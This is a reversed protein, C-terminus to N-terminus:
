FEALPFVTCDSILPGSFGRFSKTAVNKDVFKPALAPNGALPSEFTLQQAKATLANSTKTVLKLRM